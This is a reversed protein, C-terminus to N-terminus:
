RLELCVLQAVREWLPLLSRACTRSMLPASQFTRPSRCAEVLRGIPRTQPFTWALSFFSIFNRRSVFTTSHLAVPSALSFECAMCSMFEVSDWVKKEDTLVQSIAILCACPVSLKCRSGASSTRRIISSKCNCVRSMVWLCASSAPRRGSCWRSGKSRISTAWARTSPM